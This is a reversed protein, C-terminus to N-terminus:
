KQIDEVYWEGLNNRRLLIGYKKLCSVAINFESFMGLYKALTELASVKSEAKLKPKGDKDVGCLTVTTFASEDWKDIPKFKWGSAADYTCISRIDFDAIKRLRDVVWDAEIETRQQQSQRLEEIRAQIDPKTLNEAGIATATKASYGARVSAKTANLDILYEQCFQSQKATLKSM